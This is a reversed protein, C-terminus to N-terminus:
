SIFTWEIDLSQKKRALSSEVPLPPLRSSFDSMTSGASTIQVWYTQLEGKGKAVIKDERPTLWAAKGKARLADATEQSVHIRGPFGNSEMRSATNMTDGFLQFRGKEGRNEISLYFVHYAVDVHYFKSLILRQWLFMQLQYGTGICLLVYRLVGAIVGGSHMGVRFQLARVEDGVVDALDGNKLNDMAEMCEKAFKTM